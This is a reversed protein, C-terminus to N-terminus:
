RETQAAPTQDAQAAQEKDLLRRKRTLGWRYGTLAGSGAVVRHCPVLVAIGNSACARAVARAGTPAGLRRALEGYSITEGPALQTLAQWVRTQFATGRIDLPLATDPTTGDIVAVVRQVWDHLQADAAEVQAKPFRRRLEAVLARPAGFEVMCIGRSTAAVLISGLSTDAAAYRIREDHGGARLKRPAMGLSESDRYAASSAAYGADYIAETVSGAARLQRDLRARRQALAYRKPSVGVTAKFVRQFHWPSLGAEQALTALDPATDAAEIRRCARDIAAQHHNANMARIIGRRLTGPM